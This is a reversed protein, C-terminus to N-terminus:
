GSAGGFLPLPPLSQPGGGAVGSGISSIGFLDPRGPNGTGDANIWAPNYITGDSSAWGFIEYFMTAGPAWGSVAVGNGGSFRGGSSSVINTAYLGSFTFPGVPAPAILLGFLYAGPPGSLTTANGVGVASILTTPTNEFNILGQALAGFAMMSLCLTSVIRKM